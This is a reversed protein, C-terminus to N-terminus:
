SSYKIDCIRLQLGTRGNWSNLELNLLADICRNKLMEPEADPVNWAVADAATRGNSLKMKLHKGNGIKRCEVVRVNRAAFNPIPNGNGFPELLKVLYASRINLESESLQGDVKIRRQYIDADTKEALKNLKTRLKNINGQELSLGAAMAHGGHAKLLESCESLAEFINFGEISRCSGKAENEDVSLVICPKYFRDSIRSAVIGIVGQHWAEGEVVIVKDKHLGRREIKELANDVIDKELNQRKKNEEGLKAAITEAETKDNCSLLQVALMASGLRGAANIRPGLMFGVHYAELQEKDSIGSENILARIGARKTSNLRKLGYKAIIRNEGTLPVVDCITGLAALDIYDMFKEPEELKQSLAQVLKFVVGAGALEKFPYSCEGKCPNLVAYADPLVKPCQHHDTVIVDIGADMLIKVEKIASIGCDCTIVLTSGWNRITDVGLDSLGYGEGERTPIYLKPELGIHRLYDTLVTASVVGDVDYDSYVTVKENNKKAESIRGVAKAMGDMLFPDHLQNLSPNIFNKIETPDSMDRTLFLKALLPEIGTEEILRQVATPNLQKQNWYYKNLM